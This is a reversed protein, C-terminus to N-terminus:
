EKNRTLAEKQPPKEKQLAYARVNSNIKKKQITHRSPM